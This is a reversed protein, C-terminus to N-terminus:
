DRLDLKVCKSALAQRKQQTILEAHSAGDSEIIEKKKAESGNMALFANKAAEKSSFHIFGVGLCNGTNKDRSVFCRTIHGYEVFKEKLSSENTDAPLKDM